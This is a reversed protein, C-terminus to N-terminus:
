TYSFHNQWSAHQIAHSSELLSNGLPNNKFNCYFILLFFNNFFYVLHNHFDSQNTLFIKLSYTGEEWFLAENTETTPRNCKQM